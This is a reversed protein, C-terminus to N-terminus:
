LKRLRSEFRAREDDSFKIVKRRTQDLLVATVDAIAGMRGTDANFLLHTFSTTKDGISRVFSQTTIADGAKFPRCYTLLYEVVVTGRNQEFLDRSDFGFANWFHGAGDSSRSIYYRPMMKGTADCDSPVVLGRYVTLLDREKLDDLTPDPFPARRDASRRKAYDPLDVLHREARERSEKLWPVPKGSHADVNQWDSVFTAALGDDSGIMSHFVTMTSEGLDVVGTRLTFTDAARLEAHFRVHDQHPRVHVVNTSANSPSLGLRLRFHADAESKKAFYFQVNYHDNEDCEWTNVFGRCTEVLSCPSM